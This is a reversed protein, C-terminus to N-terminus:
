PDVLAGSGLSRIAFGDTRFYERIVDAQDCVFINGGRGIDLWDAIGNQDCDQCSDPITDRDVDPTVMSNTDVWDPSGNSNCDPECVDPVNNGNADATLGLDIEYEDPLQDNNCDNECDDPVGNGNVDAAGKLIEFGDFIGNHNCDECEDPIGNLNSDQSFA